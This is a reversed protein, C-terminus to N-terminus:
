PQTCRLVIADADRRGSSDEARVRVVRRGRGATIRVPDTCRRDASPVLAAAAGALAVL